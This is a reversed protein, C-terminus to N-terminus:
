PNSCPVTYRTFGSGQTLPAVGLYLVFILTVTFNVAPIAM